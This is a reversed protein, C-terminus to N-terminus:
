VKAAEADKKVRERLLEVEDTLEVLQDRFWRLAALEKIDFSLEPRGEDRAREIRMALYAIRRGFAEIHASRGSTM